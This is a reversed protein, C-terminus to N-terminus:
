ATVRPGCLARGFGPRTWDHYATGEVVQRTSECTCSAVAWLLICVGGAHGRAGCLAVVVTVEVALVVEAQFSKRHMSNRSTSQGKKQGINSTLNMRGISYLQLKNWKVQTYSEVM